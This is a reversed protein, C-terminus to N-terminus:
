PEMRVWLAPRIGGIGSLSHKRNFIGNGNIGVCGGSSDLQNPALGHIYGAVRHDRGPSRLWWWSYYGKYKAMRKPNNEDKRGFWYKQKPSRNYLLASSDGFYRCVVDEITLFFIYDQTDEGGNTGYWPNNPTHNTVSIIKSRNVENFRNYFEGNLYQRLECDAWTIGEKKNHYEREEM